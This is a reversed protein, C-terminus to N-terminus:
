TPGSVDTWPFHNAALYVFMFLPAGSPQEREFLRLAQDFYFHRAAHGRRGGMDAMDIFQRRRRFAPFKRASLFDGYSPYLSFTKYGCRKLAAAPRAHHPRRCHADCLIEPQRVVAGVPRDARQIRHVLDARRDGGGRVHAHKGDASKFFDAYGDPVKIGPATASTSARSTWCCSSTRGTRRRMATRSRRCSRRPPMRAARWRCRSDADAEMWGTSALHSVAVVGSRALNSIHNVGQFPEWPQEPNALSLGIM